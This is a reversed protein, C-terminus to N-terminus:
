LIKELYLVCSLEGFRGSKKEAIELVATTLSHGVCKYYGEFKYKKDNRKEKTFVPFETHQTSLRIAKKKVGKTNGAQIEIPQDPNDERNFCGALIVHNKQPLYTRPEGGVSKMIEARSYEITTKFM